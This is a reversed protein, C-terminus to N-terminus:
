CISHSFFMQKWTCHKRKLNTSVILAKTSIPCKDSVTRLKSSFQATAFLSPQKPELRRSNRRWRNIKTM